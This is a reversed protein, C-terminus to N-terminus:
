SPPEDADVPLPPAPRPPPWPQRNQEYFPRMTPTALLGGHLQDNSWWAEHLREKDRPALSALAAVRESAAGADIYNGAGALASFPGNLISPGLELLGAM